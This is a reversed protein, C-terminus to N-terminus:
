LAFGKERLRSRLEEQLLAGSDGGGFSLTGSTFTTGFTRALTVAQALGSLLQDDSLRDLPHIFASWVVGNAVAYRADLATDFNAQLLRLLVEGPLDDVSAVGVLARMRNAEGDAIVTVAVDDLEFQWFAGQEGRSANDDLSEIISGLRALDMVPGAEQAMSSGAVLLGTFLVAVATGHSIFRRM